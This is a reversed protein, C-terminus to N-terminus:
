PHQRRRQRRNHRRRYAAEMRVSAHQLGKYDILLEVLERSLNALNEHVDAARV